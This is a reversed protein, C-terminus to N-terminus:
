MRSLSPNQVARTVYLSVRHLLDEEIMNYVARGAKYTTSEALTAGVTIYTGVAPVVPAQVSTIIEGKRSKLVLLMLVPGNDEDELNEIYVRGTERDRWVQQNFEIQVLNEGRRKVRYFDL